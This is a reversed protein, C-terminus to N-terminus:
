LLWVSSLYLSPETLFNSSLPADLGSHPDRADMYFTLHLLMSRYCCQASPSMLIRLAQHNALRIWDTLETKLSLSKRLFFPLSGSLSSM